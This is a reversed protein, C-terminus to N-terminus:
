KELHKVTIFLLDIKIKKSSKSFAYKEIIELESDNSIEVKELNTCFNFAYPGIIKIFSPITANKIDREAFILVDYDQKDVSLKGLIFNDYSKFIPNGESVDIKQLIFLLM